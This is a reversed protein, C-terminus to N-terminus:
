HIRDPSDKAKTGPDGSWTIGTLILIAGVAALLTMREGLIMM